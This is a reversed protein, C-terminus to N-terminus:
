EELNLMKKANIFQKQKERENNLILSLHDYTKKKSEKIQSKGIIRKREEQDANENVQKLLDFDDFSPWVSKGFFVYFYILFQAISFYGM